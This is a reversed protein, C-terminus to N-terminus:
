GCRRGARAAEGWVHALADFRDSVAQPLDVQTKVDALATNLDGITRSQIAIRTELSDLERQQADSLNELDFLRGGHAKWYVTPIGWFGSGVGLQGAMSRRLATVVSDIGYQDSLLGTYFTESFAKAAKAAFDFQMAVVSSVITGRMIAHAVGDFAYFPVETAGRPKAPTPASSQCATMVVLKLSSSLQLDNALDTRRDPRRQPAARRRLLSSGQLEPRSWGEPVAGHGIFHLVHWPGDERLTKLIGAYTSPGPVVQLKTDPIPMGDNGFSIGTLAARISAFEDVAAANQLDKPDAIVVLVRLPPRIIHQSALTPPQDRVPKLAGKSPLIRSVTYCVSDGPYEPFEDDGEPYRMLEVPLESLHIQGDPPTTGDDDLVVTIALGRHKSRVENRSLKLAALLQGSFM